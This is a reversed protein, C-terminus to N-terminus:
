KAGEEGERGAQRGGERGGERMPRETDSHFIYHFYHNRVAVACLLLFAHLSAFTVEAM